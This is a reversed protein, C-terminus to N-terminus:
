TDNMLDIASHQTNVSTAGNCCACMLAVQNWLVDDNDRCLLLVTFLIRTLWQRPASVLAAGVCPWQCTICMSINNLYAGNVTM